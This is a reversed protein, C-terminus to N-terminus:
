SIDELPHPLPHFAHVLRRYLPPCAIGLLSLLFPESRATRTFWRFVDWLLINELRTPAALAAPSSLRRRVLPRLLLPVSYTQRFIRLFDRAHPLAASWADPTARLDVFAWLLLQLARIRRTRLGSGPPPPTQALVSLSDFYASLDAPAIPSRSVSGPRIVVAYIPSSLFVPRATAPLAALYSWLFRTDELFRVGSDFRRARVTSGYLRGWVSANAWVHFRAWQRDPSANASPAFLALRNSPSCLHGIAPGVVIDPADGIARAYAALTGPPLLDDADVFVIFSGRARELATNRAVSVGRNEPLVVPTFRPDGRFIDQLLALAKSDPGDFVYLFEARQFSQTRLSLANERLFSDPVEYLPIIVSVLPAPQSDSSASFSDPASISM